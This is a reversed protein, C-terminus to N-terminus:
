NLSKYDELINAKSQELEIDSIQPFQQKIDLEAGAIIETTHTLTLESSKIILEELAQAKTGTLKYELRKVISQAIMQSDFKVTTSVLLSENGLFDTKVSEVLSIDKHAALISNIQAVEHPQLCQGILLKSNETCILIGLYIQVCGNLMEGVLDLWVLGTAYCLTSTVLPMSVGLLALINEMVIASQIPDVQRKGRIIDRSMRTRDLVKQVVGEKDEEKLDGMNKFWIYFEGVSSLMIASLSLPTLTLGAIDYSGTLLSSVPVIINYLGSLAFCVGPLIVALNKYKSYGYNYFEDPTQKSWNNAFYLVLHSGADLVSRMIEAKVAQSHSLGYAAVKLANQFVDALLERRIMSNNKNSNDSFFRLSRRFWM